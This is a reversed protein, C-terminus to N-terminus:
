TGEQRSLTISDVLGNQWDVSVELDRFRVLHRITPTSEPDRRFGIGEGLTSTVSGPSGGYVLIAHEGHLLAAGTVAFVQQAQDYKVVVRYDRSRGDVFYYHTRSQEQIVDPKGLIQLVNSVAMGPRIRSISLKEPELNGIELTLVPELPRYAKWRNQYQSADIPQSSLGLYQHFSSFTAVVTLVLCLQGLSKWRM